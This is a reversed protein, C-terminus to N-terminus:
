RRLEHLEAKVQEWPIWETETALVERAMRIDEADELEHVHRIVAEKDEFPLHDIVAIVQTATMITFM